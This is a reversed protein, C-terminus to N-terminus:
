VVNLSLMHIHIQQTGEKEVYIEIWSLPRIGGFFSM